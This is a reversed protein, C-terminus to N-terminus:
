KELLTKAIITKATQRNVIPFTKVSSSSIHVLGAQREMNFNRVLKETTITFDSNCYDYNIAIFEQDHYNRFKRILFLQKLEEIRDVSSAVTKCFLLFQKPTGYAFCPCTGSLFTLTDTKIPNLEHGFNFVDYDSVFFGDKEPLLTSYALWRLYCALGYKNIPKGTIKQHIFKISNTYPEYFDHKEADERGLILTEVGCSEWNKVWLSLLKDQECFDIGEYYTVIRPM